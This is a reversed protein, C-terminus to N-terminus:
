QVKYEQLATAAKSDASLDMFYIRKKIRHQPTPLSTCFFSHRNCADVVKGNFVLTHLM